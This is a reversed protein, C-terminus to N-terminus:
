ERQRRSLYIGFIGGSVSLVLICVAAAMATSPLMVLLWAGFLIGIISPIMTNHTRLWILLYPIAFLALYFWQGMVSTFPKILGTFIGWVDPSQDEASQPEMYEMWDYIANADEIPAPTSTALPRKASSVAITVTATKSGFSNTATMTITHSGLGAYQVWPTLTQTNGSAKVGSGFDWSLSTVDTGTAVINITEGVGFSTGATPQTIEIVPLSGAVVDHTTDSYIVNGIVPTLKLKFLYRGTETITVSGSSQTLATDTWAGNDKSMQWVYSSVGSPNTISSTLQVTNSVSLDLTYPNVAVSSISPVPVIQVTAYKGVLYSDTSQSLSTDTVVSKILYTGGANFSTSLSATTQGSIEIWSIPSTLSYYWKYSLGETSGQYTVASVTATVTTGTSAPSISTLTVSNITPPATSSVTLTAPSTTVAQGLSDTVQLYVSHTGESQFLTAPVNWTYPSGTNIWQGIEISSDYYWKYTYPNGTPATPLSSVSLSIASATSTSIENPQVIVSVGTVDPAAYTQFSVYNSFAYLDGFGNSYVEVKYQHETATQDNVTATYTLTFTDHVAYSYLLNRSGGIYEYIYANLQEANGLDTIPLALVLSYSTGVKGTTQSQGGINYSLDGISPSTVVRVSNTTASATQTSGSLTETVTCKFTYIGISAPTYSLTASTQGSIDTYAGGSSVSWQYTLTGGAGATAQAVSSIATNVAVTSTPQTQISITPESAVTHAYSLVTQTGSGSLTNSGDNNYIVKTNGNDKFSIDYFAYTSGYMVPILNRVVTQGSYIKVKYVNAKTVSRYGAGSRSADFIYLSDSGYGSSGPTISLSAGNYTFASSDLSLTYKTSSSFSPTVDVGGAVAVRWKSQYIGIYFGGTSPNSGFVYRPTSTTAGTTVVQTILDVKTTSTPVIGTDIYGYSTGGTIYGNSNSTPESSTTGDGLGYVTEWTGGTLSTSLKDDTAPAYYHYTNSSDKVTIYTNGGSSMTFAHQGSTDYVVTLTETAGAVTGVFCLLAILLGLFIISKKM